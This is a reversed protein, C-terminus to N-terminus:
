APKESPCDGLKRTVRAGEFWRSDTGGDHYCLAAKAAKADLVFTWNHDGCNHQECGWSAIRGDAGTFIPTQPGSRGTVLHRIKADPVAAILASSVETRDFFGVGDVADAPYHGVYATLPTGNAQGAIPKPPQPSPPTFGGPATASKTGDDGKGCATVMVLPMLALLVTLRRM